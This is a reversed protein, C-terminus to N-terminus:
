RLCVTEFSVSKSERLCTTSTIPRSAAILHACDAMLIFGRVTDSDTKKNMKILRPTKQQMMKPM